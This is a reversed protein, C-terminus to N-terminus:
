PESLNGNKQRLAAVTIVFLWLMLTFFGWLLVKIWIASADQLFVPPERKVIGKEILAVLAGRKADLLRIIELLRIRNIENLEHDRRECEIRFRQDQYAAALIQMSTSYDFRALMADAEYGALYSEFLALRRRYYEVFAEKKAIDVLFDLRCEDSAIRQQTGSLAILEKRLKALSPQPEFGNVVDNMVLKALQSTAERGFGSARVVISKGVIDVHLKNRMREVLRKTDKSNFAAHALPHLALALFYDENRVSAVASLLAEDRVNRFETITEAQWETEGLSLLWYAVVMTTLVAMLAGRYTRFILPGLTDVSLTNGCLGSNM